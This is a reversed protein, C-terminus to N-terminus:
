HQLTGEEIWARSVQEPVPRKGLIFLFLQMQAVSMRRNSRQEIIKGDLGAVDPIQITIEPEILKIIQGIVDQVLSVAHAHRMRELHPRWEQIMADDLKGSAQRLIEFDAVGREFYNEPM